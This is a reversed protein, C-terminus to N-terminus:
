QTVSLQLALLFKEAYGAILEARDMGNIVRRAEKFNIEEENIYQSLKRTTFLGKQMGEFTIKLAIEPVLALEPNNYLDVGIADGVKKYVHWWTIQVYGRGFYVKGNTHPKSYPRGKGKGKEEVPQFTQNTEHFVTALIYAFQAETIFNTKNDIFLELGEVQSQRLKGGFLNKRVEDFFTEKNMNM